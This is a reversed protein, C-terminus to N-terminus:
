VFVPVAQQEQAQRQETLFGHKSIARDDVLNIM